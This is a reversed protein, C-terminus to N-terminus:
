AKSKTWGYFKRRNGEEGGAGTEVAGTEGAVNGDIVPEGFLM